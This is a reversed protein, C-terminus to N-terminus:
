KLGRKRVNARHRGMYRISLTKGLRIHLDGRFSCVSPFGTKTQPLIQRKNPNGFVPFLAKKLDTVVPPDTVYPKAGKGILVIGQSLFILDVEEV